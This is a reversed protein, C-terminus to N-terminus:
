FIHPAEDKGDWEDAIPVCQEQIFVLDRLQRLANFEDAWMVHSITYNM